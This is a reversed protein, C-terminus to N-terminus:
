RPEASLNTIKKLLQDWLFNAKERGSNPASLLLWIIKGDELPKQSLGSTAASDHIEEWHVYKQMIM